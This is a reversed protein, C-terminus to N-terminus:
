FRRWFVLTEKAEDQLLAYEYAVGGEQLSHSPLIATQGDEGIKRYVKKKPDLAWRGPLFLSPVGGGVMGGDILEGAFPLPFKSGSARSGKGFM